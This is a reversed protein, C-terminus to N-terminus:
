ERRRQIFNRTLKLATVTLNLWGALRIGSTNRCVFGYNTNWKYHTKKICAFDILRNYIVIWQKM